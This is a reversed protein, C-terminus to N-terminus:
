KPKKRGKNLFRDRQQKFSQSSEKVYDIEKISPFRFSFVTNGAVNTISFDGLNIVNMGIIFGFREADECETANINSLAIGNPLYLNLKYVNEISEGKAHFVKTKTFPKLGVKIATQKTIVCNTAGTDWLAKVKFIKPNHTSTQPDFPFSIGIDNILENLLGGNSRTTFAHFQLM